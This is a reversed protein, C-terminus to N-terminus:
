LRKQRYPNPQSQCASVISFVGNQAKWYEAIAKCANEANDVAAMSKISALMESLKGYYTDAKSNDISNIYDLEAAIAENIREIKEIPTYTDIENVLDTFNDPGDVTPEFPLSLVRRVDDTDKAWIHLSQGWKQKPDKARTIATYLLDRSNTKAFPFYVLVNDFGLGQAQHITRCCASSIKLVEAEKLTIDIPQAQGSRDKGEARVTVASGTIAVIEGFTGSRIPQMGEIGSVSERFVIPEGVAYISDDPVPKGGKDMEHDRNITFLQAPSYLLKKIALNIIDRNEQTHCLVVFERGPRLGAKIYESCMAAIEDMAGSGILNVYNDTNHRVHGDLFNKGFMHPNRFNQYLRFKKFSDDFFM